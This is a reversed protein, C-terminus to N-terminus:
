HIESGGTSNIAQGTLYDSYKSALFIVVDAVDEPEELRGLPTDDIYDQKVEEITKGKLEAEWKLEREQMKTKVYGPCVANVNINHPAFELALSHTFGRMAWKSAAYHALLPVGRKAAMSAINIIKTNGGKEIMHKGIIKCCLFVGKANIDMNKDWEEETLDVVKNMSSVGANNVLIDIKNFEKISKQLVEKIQEENTVDMEYSTAKGGMDIIMNQTEEAAKLNIDTAIISAGEKALEKAIVQGIGSGSGTILVNKNELLM